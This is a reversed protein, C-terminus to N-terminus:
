SPPGGQRIVEDGSVCRGFDLDVADLAEQGGDKLGAVDDLKSAESCRAALRHAHEGAIKM